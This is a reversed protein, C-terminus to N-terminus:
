NSNKRITRINIYTQPTALLPSTIILSTKLTQTTETTTIVFDLSSVPAITGNLKTAPHMGRQLSVSSNVDDRTIVVPSQGSSLSPNTISLAQIGDNESIAMISAGDIAEDIKDFVFQSEIEIQARTQSKDALEILQHTALLIATMVLAFLGIYLLTEILTFGSQSNPNQQILKKMIM